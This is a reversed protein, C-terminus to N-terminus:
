YIKDNKLIMNSTTLDGHIINKDHVLAVNEGIKNCIKEYNKEDLYDRLLKGEVFEMEIKYNEEDIKTLEPSVGVLKEIVKAERKTRFKRLNEDIERIRYGKKIREKIIKNEDKTLVAEAGQAIRRM